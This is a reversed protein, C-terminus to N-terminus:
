STCWYKLESKVPNVASQWSTSMLMEVSVQDGLPCLLKALASKQSLDADTRVAGAELREIAGLPEHIVIVINPQAPRIPGGARPLGAIGEGVDLRKVPLVPRLNGNGLFIGIRCTM